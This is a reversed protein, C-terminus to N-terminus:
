WGRLQKLQSWIYRLMWSDWETVMAAAGANMVCAPAPVGPAWVNWDYYDPFGFGHGFEHLFIHINDANVNNTFYESGVRQGWDGGAGGSMGETLWLSMDYHNAAGGPCDPYTYGAQQHFFRGCAEACQPADERIDGIYVPVSDDSWQLLDRNYAAWGTVQVPIDGYPWCDYGILAAFWHNAQRVLAAAIQDRMQASVTANSDWRVCYNITGGTEMIRDLTTNKFNQVGASVPRAGQQGEFGGTMEKWTLEITELMDAPPPTTDCEGSGGSGGSETGSSGGTLNGGAGGTLNGGTGGTLNGGTGGTLNGGTGGTLEGGTGGTLQGGSGGTLNGGTGGTLQGGSGTLEGGTGGTLSGGAASEAGGSSVGGTGPSLGGARGGSGTASMGGTQAGVAGSEGIAATSDAGSAGAAPPGVTIPADGAPVRERGATRDARGAIREALQTPPPPPPPVSV